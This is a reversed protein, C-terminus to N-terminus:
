SGSFGLYPELNEFTQDMDYEGLFPLSFHGYAISLQAEATDESGKKVAAIYFASALGTRDAGSKCHILIPKPAKELLAILNKARDDPLTKVPSMPFDMHAIGLAAAKSVEADYWASGKHAGRLNLITKFGYRRHLTELDNSSLQASRYLEGPFVTHFNGTQFLFLCYAAVALAVFLAGFGLTPWLSRRRKAFLKPKM